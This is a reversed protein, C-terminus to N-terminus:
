DDYGCVKVQVLCDYGSWFRDIAYGDFKPVDFIHCMGLILFWLALGKSQEQLGLRFGWYRIFLLALFRNVALIYPPAFAGISPSKRVV